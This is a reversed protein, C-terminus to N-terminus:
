GAKRWDDGPHDPAARGGASFAVLGGAVPPIENFANRDRDWEVFWNRGAAGMRNRLLSVAFSPLGPAGAELARSAGASVRWRTTAASASPPAAARLMLVPVGSTEAAFLLRRSATLGLVGAEGWIELMVVGLSACGAAEAGARLVDGPSRARVLTLQDVDVGMERLGPAHLGGAELRAYDHRVWVAPRGSTARVGMALMFGAAASADPSEGAYVEHLGGRALGGGLAEDVSPAGLRFQEPAAIRGGREIRTLTARIPALDARM